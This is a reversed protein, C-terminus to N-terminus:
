NQTIRQEVSTTLSATGCFSSSVGGGFSGKCLLDGKTYDIPNSMANPNNCSGSVSPSCLLDDDGYAISLTITYPSTGTIKFKVLRSHPPLLETGTSTLSGPFGSATACSTPTPNVDRELVHQSGTPGTSGLEKGIVYTYRVTGICYAQKNPISGTNKFGENLELDQSVQNTINRSDDQIRSQSIGKFYLNGISSIIVTTLLLLVSLVATAIMLEVITFGAQVDPTSGAGTLRAQSNM